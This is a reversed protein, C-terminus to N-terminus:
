FGLSEEFVPYDEEKLEEHAQARRSLRSDKPEFNEIIDIIKNGDALALDIVQQKITESLKYYYAM